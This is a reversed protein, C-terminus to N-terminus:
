VCERERKREKERECVGVSVGVCVVNFELRFELIKEESQRDLLHMLFTKHM